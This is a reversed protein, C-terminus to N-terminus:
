MEPVALSATDSHELYGEERNLSKCPLSREGQFFIIFVM